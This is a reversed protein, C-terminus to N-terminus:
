TIKREADGAHPILRIWKEINRFQWGVGLGALVVTLLLPFFSGSTRDFIGAWPLLLNAGTMLLVAGGFSSAVIVFLDFVRPVVFGGILGCVVALLTGFFGGLLGDLGFLAAISFGILLGGSVGILIRRFPELFYSAAGLLIAGIVGLVIATTGVTGTLSRGLLLGIDFGVLGYLLPLWAYFLFLGFSMIALGTVVMLLGAIIPTSM